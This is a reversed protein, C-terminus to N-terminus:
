QLVGKGIKNENTLVFMEVSSKGYGLDIRVRYGVNKQLVEPDGSVFGEIKQGYILQRLKPFSQGKGVNNSEIAWMTETPNASSVSVELRKVGYKEAKDCIFYLEKGVMKVDLAISGHLLHIPANVSLFLLFCILLFIGIAIGTIRKITKM